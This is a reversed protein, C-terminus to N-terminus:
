QTGANQRRIEDPVTFKNRNRLATKTAKVAAAAEELREQLAVLGDHEDKRIETRDVSPCLVLEQFKRKEVEFRPFCGVWGEM